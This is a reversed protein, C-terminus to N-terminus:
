HEYCAVLDGVVTCELEVTIPEDQLTTCSVLKMNVATCLFLERLYLTM